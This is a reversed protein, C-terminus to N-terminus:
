IIRKVNISIIIKCLRYPKTGVSVDTMSKVLYNDYMKGESLIYRM